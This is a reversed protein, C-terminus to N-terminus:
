LSSNLLFVKSSSKKFSWSLAHLRMLSFGSSAAEIMESATFTTSLLKTMFTKWIEGFYQEDRGSGYISEVM